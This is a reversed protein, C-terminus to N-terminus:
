RSAVTEETELGTLRYARGRESTIRLSTQSEVVGKLRSILAYLTDSADDKRPWLAECIEEKSLEHSPSSLFMEMLQRQMPTLHLERGGADLFHGDSLSLAKGMNKEKTIPRLSIAMLVFTILSLLFSLRHDAMWWIELASLGVNGYASIDPRINVREGSIGRASAKDDEKICLTLVASDRLYTLRLHQRYTRITDASLWDEPQDAMTLCLAQTLDDVIQRRQMQYDNVATWIASVAFLLTVLLAPTRKM